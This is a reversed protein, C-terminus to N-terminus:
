LISVRCLDSFICLEDADAVNRAHVLLGDIAVWTDFLLCSVMDDDEYLVELEHPAEPEKWPFRQYVLESGARNCHVYVWTDFRGCFPINPLM